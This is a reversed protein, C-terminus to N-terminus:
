KLEGTFTGTVPNTGAVLGTTYKIEAKKIWKEFLNILREAYEEDSIEERTRMDSLLATLETKATEKETNLSM